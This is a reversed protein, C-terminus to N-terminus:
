NEKLEVLTLGKIKPKEKVATFISHRIALNIILDKNELLSIHLEILDERLNYIELIFHIKISKM